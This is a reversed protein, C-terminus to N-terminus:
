QKVFVGWKSPATGLELYPLSSDTGHFLFVAYLLSELVVPQFALRILTSQTKIKKTKCKKKTNHANKNEHQTKLNKHIINTQAVSLLIISVMLM